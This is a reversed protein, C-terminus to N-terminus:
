ETEDEPNIATKVRDSIKEILVSAAMGLTLSLATATVVATVKRRRSTVMTTEEPTEEVIKSMVSEQIYSVPNM